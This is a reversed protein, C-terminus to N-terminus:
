QGEMYKTPPVTTWTVSLLLNLKSVSWNQNTSDNTDRRTDRLVAFKSQVNNDISYVIENLVQQTLQHEM